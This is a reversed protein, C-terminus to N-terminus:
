VELGLATLLTATRTGLPPAAGEKLLLVARSFDADCLIGVRGSLLEDFFCRAAVRIRHTLQHVLLIDVHVARVVVEAPGCVKSRRVAM